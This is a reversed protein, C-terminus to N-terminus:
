ISTKFNTSIGLKICFSLAEVLGHKAFLHYPSIQDNILHDPGFINDFLFILMEINSLKSEEKLIRNLLTEGYKM